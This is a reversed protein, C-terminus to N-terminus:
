LKRKVGIQLGFSNTKISVDNILFARKSTNILGISGKLGLDLALKDGLPINAGLGMSVGADIKKSWESEDIKMEPQNGVAEYTSKQSILFGLYPGANVYFAIKGNASWSGLLPLILYDYNSKTNLPEGNEDTFLGPGKAGKREYALGTKLSIQRAVFYELSLGASYSLRPDFLNEDPITESLSVIVPSFELGLAMKSDQCYAM